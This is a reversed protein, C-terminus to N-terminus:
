RSAPGRSASGGAYSASFEEAAPRLLTAIVERDFRRTFIVAGQALMHHGDTLDRDPVWSRADVVLVPYSRRLNNLYDEIRARAEQSYWGQFERSEPTRLLIVPIRERRCVGLLERLARETAGRIQYQDLRDAYERHTQELSRARQEDGVPGSHSLWGWRDQARWHEPEAEPALLGATFRERLCPRSTSWPNLRSLYWARLVERPRPCYRRVVELDLWALQEAMTRFWNHAYDESFNLFPPMVEVVLWTPRIGEALLQRLIMLHTLPNAQVMGFNFVLPPKGAGKHQTELIEPCLGLEVRSSGLVLLLPRGPNETRRARLRALRYGYEPYRLEPHWREMSVVVSLHLGAFFLMGWLLARRPRHATRYIAMSM